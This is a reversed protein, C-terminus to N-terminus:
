LSFGNWTGTLIFRAFDMLAIQALATTFGGMLAVWLGRYSSFTNERKALMVWVMTYIMSLLGLVTAASLLALPYLLLPNGSLIALDVLSLMGLAIGLQKWSSLLREGTFDKWITQNFVPLLMSSMGLGLGTGTVLRLWNQPAYLSPLKPFFHLYSNVGDIGFAVLFVGLVLTIKVSPMGGRRGMSAQYLLGVLAGLYMGSCRACLPLPRDGLLFSRAPIRHCVAYGVADAKGLLGPPTYSLWGVLLTSALVCLVVKLFKENRLPSIM